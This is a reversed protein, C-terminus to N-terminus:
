VNCAVMKETFSGQIIRRIGVAKFSESQQLLKDEVGANVCERLLWSVNAADAIFKETEEPKNTALVELISM